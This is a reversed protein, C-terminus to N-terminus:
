KENTGAVDGPKQLSKLGSSVAEGASDAIPQRKASSARAIRSGILRQTRPGQPAGPICLRDDPICIVHSSRATPTTGPSSFASGPLM